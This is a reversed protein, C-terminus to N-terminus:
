RAAGTASAREKPRQIELGFLKAGNEGLVKRKDAETIEPYGYRSQLEPEIQL